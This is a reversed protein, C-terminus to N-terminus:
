NSFEELASDLCGWCQWPRGQDGDGLVHIWMSKLDRWSRPSWGQGPCGKGMGHLFEGQFGDQVQGTVWEPPFLRIGGPNVEWPKM